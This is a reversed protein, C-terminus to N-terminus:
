RRDGLTHTLSRLNQGRIALLPIVFSTLGAGGVVVLGLISTQTSPFATQLLTVVVTMAALGAVVAVLNTLHGAPSLGGVERMLIWWAPILMGLAALLQAIAVLVLGYRTLGLLLVTLLVLHVLNLVMSDRTRGVANLAILCVSVVSFVLGYAALWRLPTVGPAWEAGLLQLQAAMLAMGAYLPLILTLLETLTHILARGVDTGQRRCMHAFAAGGIVTAVMLFPMNALRFAMSYVGLDRTGLFRAVLVYDVNLIVLQLINAVALHGGYSILDKLDSLSWGLKVPPYVAWYLCMMAIAMIVQGVVLSYVGFGAFALVISVVMGLIAAAMDPLVRRKFLLDRRLLEQSVGAVALFPLCVIMGRIVHTGTVGSNLSASLTPAIIWIFATLAVAVVVALSLASRAARKVDGRWYVLAMSTGLDTFATTVNLVLAGIALVGMASPALVAALVLLVFTQSMKVVVAGAGLWGAGETPRTSDNTGSIPYTTM